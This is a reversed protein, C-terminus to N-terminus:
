KEQMRGSTILQLTNTINAPKKYGNIIVPLRDPFLIALQNFLIKGIM